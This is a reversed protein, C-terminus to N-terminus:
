APSSPSSRTRRTCRRITTTRNSPRRSGGRAIRSSCPKRTEWTGISNARSSPEFAPRIARADSRARRTGSERRRRRKRWTPRACWGFARTTKAPKGHVRFFDIIFEAAEQVGTRKSGREDYKAADFIDAARADIPGLYELRSMEYTRGRFPQEWSELQFHLTAPFRGYNFKEAALAKTSRAGPTDPGFIYISKPVNQIVGMGGIAAQVTGVSKVGKVFHHPIVFALNFRKAITILGNMAQANQQHGHYPNRFHGILPDLVVAGPPFGDSTLEQIRDRLLGLDKPLEWMNEELVVRDEDAQAARLRGVTIEHLPDERANFYVNQPEHQRMTGEHDPYEGTTLAATLWAAFTSKGEGRKGVVLCVQRKPIFRTMTWEIERQEIQSAPTYSKKTM